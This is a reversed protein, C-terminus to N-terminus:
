LHLFNSINATIGHGAKMISDISSINNTPDSHQSIDPKTRSETLQHDIVREEDKKNKNKQFFLGM